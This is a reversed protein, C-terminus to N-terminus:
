AREGSVIVNLRDVGLGEEIKAEQIEGIHIERPTAGDGDFILLVRETLVAYRQVYHNQDDLDYQAWAVATEGELQGNFRARLTLPLSDGGHTVDVPDSGPKATTNSSM